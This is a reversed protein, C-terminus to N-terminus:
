CHKDIFYHIFYIESKLLGDLDQGPGTHALLTSWGLSWFVTFPLSMTAKPKVIPWRTMLYGAYDMREATAGSVITM